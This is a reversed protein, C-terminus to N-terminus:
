GETRLGRVLDASASETATFPGVGISSLVPATRTVTVTVRITTPGTVTATGDYGAGRLYAEAAAVAREPALAAPSGSDYLSSDVATAGARAAEQAIDTAARAARLQAGLDAVLGFALILGPTVAAVFLTVSGEDGSATLRRRTM